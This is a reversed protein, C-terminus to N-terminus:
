EAVDWRGTWRYYPLQERGVTGLVELTKPDEIRQIESWEVRISAGRLSHLEGYDEDSFFEIDAVLGFAQGEVTVLRAVCADGIVIPDIEGCLLSTLPGVISGVPAPAIISSLAIALM